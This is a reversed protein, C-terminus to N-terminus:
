NSTFIVKNRIRSITSDSFKTSKSIQLALSEASDGSSYNITDSYQGRSISCTGNCNATGNLVLTDISKSQDDYINNCLLSISPYYFNYFQPISINCNITNGSIQTSINSNNRMYWWEYYEDDSVVWTDDNGGNLRTNYLLGLNNLYENGLRHNGLMSWMRNYKNTVITPDAYDLADL